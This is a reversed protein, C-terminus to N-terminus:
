HVFNNGNVFIFYVLLNKSCRHTVKKIVVPCNRCTFNVLVGCLSSFLAPPSASQLDLVLHPPSSFLLSVPILLPHSHPRLDSSPRSLSPPPISPTQQELSSARAYIVILPQWLLNIRRVFGCMMGWRPAVEASDSRCVQPRGRGASRCCCCPQHHCANHATSLWSPWCQWVVCM